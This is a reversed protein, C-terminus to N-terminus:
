FYLGISSYSVRVTVTCLWSIITIFSFRGSRPGHVLTGRGGFTTIEKLECCFWSGCITSCKVMSQLPFDIAWLLLEILDNNVDIIKGILNNHVILYNLNKKFLSFICHEYKFRGLSHVPESICLELGTWEVIFRSGYGIWVTLYLPQSM